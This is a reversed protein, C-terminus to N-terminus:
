GIEHGYKDLVQPVHMPLVFDAERMVKQVWCRAKLLDCYNGTPWDGFAEIGAGLETQGKIDPIFALDQTQMGLDYIIDGCIYALGDKTQVKVNMSGPTHGDTMECVIGPVIEADMDLFRIKGPVYLQDVLYSILEQPYQGMQMGSVAWALEKRAMIIKAKPFQYDNGSHDIHLHTHLIVKVDERTYGWKKLQFEVTNEPGPSWTMGLKETMINPQNEKIGTDVMMLPINDGEILYSYTCAAFGERIMLKDIGFSWSCEPGSLRGWELVKVRYTGTRKKAM